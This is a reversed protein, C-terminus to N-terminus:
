GLAITGGLILSQASACALRPNFGIAAQMVSFKGALAGNLRANLMQEVRQNYSNIPFSILGGLIQLSTNLVHVVLNGSTASPTMTSVATGINIGHWYIDSSITLDSGTVGVRINEATLSSSVQINGMSGGLQALSSAPIEIYATPAPAVSLMNPASQGTAQYPQGIRDPSTASQMQNSQSLTMPFKLNINLDADGCQPTAAISNLSGIPVQLMALPGNVLSPGGNASPRAAVQITSSNVVSFAILISITTPKPDGPYLDIKLTTLLGDVEPTLSVLTASPQLLAGAMQAAWGQDQKPLQGVMSAIASGIMQPMQQNIKSQFMPLLMQNTLYVSANISTTASPARTSRTAARVPTWLVLTWLALAILLAGGVQFHRKSRM